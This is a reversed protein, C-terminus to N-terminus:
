SESHNVIFALIKEENKEYVVDLAKRHLRFIADSELVPTEYNLALRVDDWPKCNVYRAVLLIRLKDDEVSNITQILEDLAEAKQEILLSLNGELVAFKEFKHPDKSASGPMGSLQTTTKTANEWANLKAQSLEDIELQITRARNLWRKTNTQQENL